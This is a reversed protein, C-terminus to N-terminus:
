TSDAANEPLISRMRVTERAEGESLLAYGLAVMMVTDQSTGINSIFFEILMLILFVLLEKRKEKLVRSYFAAVIGGVYYLMMYIGGMAIFSTLGMSSLVDVETISTIIDSNETFGIGFLPYHLWTTIGGQLVALRRIGSGTSLKDNILASGMYVVILLLVPAFVYVLLQRTRSKKESFIFIRLFLGVIAVLYAKTSFSTIIALLLVAVRKKDPKKSTLLEIMLAINLFHSYGPAECFIGCNRMLNSVNILTTNLTQTEFYIGFYTVTPRTKDAWTYTLGTTRFPLVGLVTGFVWCFVSVAAIFIVINSFSRIFNKIQRNRILQSFFLIYIVSSICINKIFFASTESGKWSLVVFLLLYIGALVSFCLPRCSLRKSRCIYLLCAIYLIWKTAGTSIVPPNLYHYVTTGSIILFFTIINILITDYWSSMKITLNYRSKSLM